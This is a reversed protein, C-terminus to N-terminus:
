VPVAAEQKADRANSRGVERQKKQAKRLAAFAAFAAFPIPSRSSIQPDLSSLGYYIIYIYPIFWSSLIIYRTDVVM